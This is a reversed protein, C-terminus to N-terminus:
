IIHKSKWPTFITLNVLHLTKHINDSTHHDFLLFGGMAFSHFVTIFMLEFEALFASKKDHSAHTNSRLNNEENHKM